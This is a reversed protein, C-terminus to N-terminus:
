RRILRHTKMIAGDVELQLFYLGEPLNIGQYDLRHSAAPQEGAYLTQVVRGMADMLRFRVVSNNDLNYHIFLRDSFPNPFVEIEFGQGFELDVKALEKSAEFPIEKDAVQGKYRFRLIEGTQLGDIEATLPDDGYVATTMLYGNDLIEMEGVVKDDSAIIEVTERALSAELNTKAYIMQYHPTPVIELAEPGLRSQTSHTSTNTKVWYGLGNEMIWLSNLFPPGTPDFFTTQQDFGTVYILNSNAIEVQFHDQPSRIQQPIYAHLNWGQDYANRYNPDICAGYVHLEDDRDVKVWYGYGKEINKLTNLFPLENPDYAIAGQQFSSVSVLNNSAILSAFVVEIRNDFPEVDFSILNWGEELEIVDSCECHSNGFSYVAEPNNYAQIDAGKTNEWGLFRHTNDQCPYELCSNTSQDYIKLYFGEGPNIGEDVNATLPDDGYIVLSFYAIGQNMIVESAGACNGDEDFAAVIDGAQAYSNGIKAKGVFRGSTSTPTFVFDDSCPPSSVTLPLSNINNNEDSEDVSMQEDVYFFIYYTGPTLAADTTFSISSSSVLGSGPTLVIEEGIFIDDGIDLHGDESFYYAVNTYQQIGDGAGINKVYTTLFVEEGPLISSPAVLEQFNVLDPPFCDANSRIYIREWSINNNEDTGEDIEERDDAKFLIYATGSSASSPVEFSHSELTEQGPVLAEINVDGHLAYDGGDLNIDRSLYFKGISHRNAAQDGQNRVRVSADIREGPCLNTSSLNLSNPVYDPNGCASPSNVQITVGTFDTENYGEPIDNEADALIYIRGFGETADEPIQFRGNTLYIEQGVELPEVSVDPSLEHTYQFYTVNRNTYLFRAKSYDKGDVHGHNKIRFSADVWDGPCVNVESLTLDHVQYDAFCYPQGEVEIELAIVNNSENTGEEIEHKYDAKFLIYHVGPSASDPIRFNNREIHAEGPAMPQLDVDSGVVLDHSELIPNESFYFRGASHRNSSVSGQNRVWVSVDMPQGPCIRVNPPEFDYPAYDPFCDTSGNIHIPLRIVNNNENSEIIDGNGNNGWRYDAKFFIYHTGAIAGSPINFSANETHEEGPAMPQLDVEGGVELDGDGFVDNVSYYFRGASHEDSSANGINKVWVSADIRDGPCVTTKSLHLTHPEYDPLCNSYSNVYIQRYVINNSENSETLEDKSDAKFLIYKTGIGWQSPITITKYEPHEEWLAMPELDVAGLPQDYNDLTTNSSFYFQGETHIQGRGNGENRVLVSADISEGQCVTTKSLQLNRPVYDPELPNPDNEQYVELEYLSNGYQTARRTCYIRVFRGQSGSFNWTNNTSNNNTVTRITTWNNGDNSTEIRYDKAFAGEWKLVVRCIRYSQLLDVKIWENDRWESSWRTSMNGDIAYSARLLGHDRNEESSATAIGNRAVNTYCEAHAHSFFLGLAFFCLGYILYQRYNM